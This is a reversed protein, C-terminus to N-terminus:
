IISFTLLALTVAWLSLLERDLIDATSFLNFPFPLFEVGGSRGGLLVDPGM